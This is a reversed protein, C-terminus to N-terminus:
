ILCIIIAKQRLRHIKGMNVVSPYWYIERDNDWQKIDNILQATNENAKKDHKEDFRTDSMYGCKFCMFSSYDNQQDEFCHDLDSCLPCQIVKEM